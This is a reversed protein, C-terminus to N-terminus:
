TAGLVPRSNRWGVPFLVVSRWVRIRTVVATCFLVCISEYNTHTESDLQFYKRCRVMWIGEFPLILLESWNSCAKWRLLVFIIKWLRLLDFTPEHYLLLTKVFRLLFSLPTNLQGRVMDFLETPGVRGCQTVYASPVLSHSLTQASLWLQSIHHCKTVELHGAILLESAAINCPRIGDCWVESTLVAATAPLAGCGLVPVPLIGWFGWLWELITIWDSAM